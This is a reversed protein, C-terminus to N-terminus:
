CINEDGRVWGEPVREGLSLLNFCVRDESRGKEKPSFTDCLSPHPSISQV